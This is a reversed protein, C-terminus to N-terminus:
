AVNRIYEDNRHNNVIQQHHRPLRPGAGHQLAQHQQKHRGEHGIQQAQRGQVPQQHAHHVIARHHQDNQKLRLQALRQLLDAAASHALVAAAGVALITVPHDVLDDM